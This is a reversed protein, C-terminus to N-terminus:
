RSPFNNYTTDGSSRIVMVDQEPRRLMFDSVRYSLEEGGHIFFEYNYGQELEIPQEIIAFGEGFGSFLKLPFINQWTYDDGKKKAVVLMNAMERYTQQPTYYHLSLIYPGPALSDAKLVYVMEYALQSADQFPKRNEHQLYLLDRSASRFPAAGQIIHPQTKLIPQHLREQKIFGFEVSDNGAFRSTVSWARSEDLLLPEPSKIVFLPGPQLLPDAKKNQKYSNLLDIGYETERVSTRSMCSSQVPLGSHYSYIASLFLQMTFSSRDYVESGLYFTPLPLIAAAKEASIRKLNAKEEANLLESNFVNRDKWMLGDYMKLYAHGEYLNMGLYVFSLIFLMM